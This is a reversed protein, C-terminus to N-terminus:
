NVTIQCTPNQITQGIPYGHFAWCIVHKGYLAKAADNAQPQIGSKSMLDYLVASSADPVVIRGEPTSNGFPSGISSFSASLNLAKEEGPKLAMFFTYSTTPVIAKWGWVPSVTYTIGGSQDTNSPAGGKALYGVLEETAGGPGGSVSIEISSDVQLNFSDAYTMSAAFLGCLGFLFFKTM